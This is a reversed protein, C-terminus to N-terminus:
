LNLDMESEIPIEEDMRKHHIPHVINNKDINLQNIRSPQEEQKKSSNSMPHLSTPKHRAPLYSTSPELIDM